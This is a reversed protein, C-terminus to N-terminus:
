CEINYNGYGTGKGNGNEHDPRTGVTSPMSHELQKSWVDISRTVADLSPWYNCFEDLARLDSIFM